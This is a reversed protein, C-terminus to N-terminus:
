DYKEQKGKMINNKRKHKNNYKDKKKNKKEKWRYSNLINVINTTSYINQCNADRREM